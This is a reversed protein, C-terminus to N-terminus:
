YGAAEAAYDRQYSDLHQWDPTRAETFTCLIRALRDYSCAMEYGTRYPGDCDRGSETVKRLVHGRMEPHREWTQVNRSFGEGGADDCKVRGVVKDGPPLTIRVYGGNLFVWFRLTRLERLMEPDSNFRKADAFAEAITNRLAGMRVGRYGASYYCMGEPQGASDRERPTTVLTFHPTKM